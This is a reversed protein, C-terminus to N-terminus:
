TNQLDTVKKAPLSITVKMGRPCADQYHWRVPESPFKAPHPDDDYLVGEIVASGSKTQGYSLGTVLVPVCETTGAGDWHIVRSVVPLV